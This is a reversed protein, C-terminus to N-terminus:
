HTHHLPTRTFTELTGSRAPRTPKSRDLGHRLGSCAQNMAYWSTVWPIGRAQMPKASSVVIGAKGLVGVPSAFFGQYIRRGVYVGLDEEMQVKKLPGQILASEELAFM